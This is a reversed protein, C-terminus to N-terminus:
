NNLEDWKLPVSIYYKLINSPYETFFSHLVNISENIYNSMIRQNDIM